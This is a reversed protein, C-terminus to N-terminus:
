AERRVADAALTRAPKGPAITESFVFPIRPCSLGNTGDSTSPLANTGSGPMPASVAQYGLLSVWSQGRFADAVVPRAGDYIMVPGHQGEGFVAHGIKKWRLAQKEPSASDFPLVWVVPEAGWRAVVYRLFLAVQDDPLALGASRHFEAEWFPIIASVLGVHSIFELKSDLRQFFGPNVGIHDNFGTLASEGQEDAGPAVTWEVVTFRQYDRAVSYIEWDLRSSVRAGDYTTDAMWFFPTGDGYELHRGDRAVQIAGRKGLDSEGVPATCLFEGTQQHLGENNPDSCTTRFTWHGMEPPSFRVKWTRGGDWFGYVLNTRGQPSTFVIQFTADQLANSYDVSSRFTQEFVSWKPSVPMKRSETAGQFESPAFLLGILVAVRWFCETQRRLPSNGQMFIM